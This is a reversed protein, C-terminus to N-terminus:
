LTELLIIKIKGMFDSDIFNNNRGFYSGFWFDQCNNQEYRPLFSSKMFENQFKSIKLLYLEVNLHIKNKFLKPSFILPFSQFTQIKSKKRPYLQTWSTESNFQIWLEQPMSSKIPEQFM